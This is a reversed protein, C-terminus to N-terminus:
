MASVESTSRKNTKKYQNSSTIPNINSLGIPGSSISKLPINLQM